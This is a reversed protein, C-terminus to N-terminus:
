GATRCAPGIRSIGPTGTAPDTWALAAHGLTSLGLALAIAVPSRRLLSTTM